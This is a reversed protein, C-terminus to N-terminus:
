CILLYDKARNNFVVNTIHQMAISAYCSLGERYLIKVLLIITSDLLQIDYITGVNSKQLIIYSIRIM